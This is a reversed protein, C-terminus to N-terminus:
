INGNYWVKIPKNKLFSYELRIEKLIENTAQTKTEYDCVKYNGDKLRFKYESYGILKNDFSKLPVGLPYYEITFRKRIKKLLKTKM